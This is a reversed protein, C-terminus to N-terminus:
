KDKNIMKYTHLQQPLYPTDLESVLTLELFQFLDGFFCLVSNKWFELVYCYTM